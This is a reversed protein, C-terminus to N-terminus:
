KEDPTDKDHDFIDNVEEYIKEVNSEFGEKNSHKRLITQLEPVEKEVVGAVKILTATDIGLEKLKQKVSAPDLKFPPITM